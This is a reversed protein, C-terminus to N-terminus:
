FPRRIPEALVPTSQPQASQGGVYQRWREVNDGLDRPAVKRLAGVVRYQMAPDHDGLAPVLTAMAAPDRTDGLAQVATLRVDTDTNGAFIQRLLSTAEPGKQRALAKCVAIRVDSDSDKAAGALAALAVPGPYAGLVEVMHARILPDPERPYQAAVESAIRDREAPDKPPAAALKKLDAIRESPPTIGPVTDAVKAGLPWSKCGPLAAGLLAVILAAM